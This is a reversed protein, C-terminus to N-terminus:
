RLPLVSQNIFYRQYLEQEEEAVLMGNKLYEITSITIKM